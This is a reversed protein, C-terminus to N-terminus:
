WYIKTFTLKNIKSLPTSSTSIRYHVLSAGIEWETIRTRSEIWIDCKFLIKINNSQTPSLNVNSTASLCQDQMYIFIEQKPELTDKCKTRVLFHCSVHILFDIIKLKEPLLTPRNCRWLKLPTQWQLLNHAQIKHPFTSLLVSLPTPTM